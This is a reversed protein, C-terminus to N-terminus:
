LHQPNENVEVRLISGLRRRPEKLWVTTVTPSSEEFVVPGIQSYTLKWSSKAVELTSFISDEPMPTDCVYVIM